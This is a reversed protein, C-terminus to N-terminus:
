STFLAPQFYYKSKVLLAMIGAGIPLTGTGSLLTATQHNGTEFTVLFTPGSGATTLLGGFFNQGPPGSGVNRNPQVGSGYLPVWFSPFQPNPIAGGTNSLDLGFETLLESDTTTVVIQLDQVLMDGIAPNLQGPVYQSIGNRAGGRNRNTQPEWGRVNLGTPTTDPRQLEFEQSLDLGYVPFNLDAVQQQKANPDQQQPPM